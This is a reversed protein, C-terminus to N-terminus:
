DESLLDILDRVKGFIEDFTVVTVPGLCSRFLEFSRRQCADLSPTELSGVVVLCRPNFVCFQETVGRALAHFNQLLANRYNLVQVISGSLEETMCCANTRYQPGVLRTLPTKIEVLTVNRNSQTVFLFDVINGGTNEFTKGGVYCKEKLLLIHDPVAQAILRPTSVFLKQWFEEDANTKNREWVDLAQALPKAKSPDVRPTEIAGLELARAIREEHRARAQRLFDATYTAPDRDVMEHHNPCLVILNDEDWSAGEREPDYRPGGPGIAHIHCIHGLSLGSLEVPFACGPFACRGGSKAFLLKKVRSPIMARHKMGQAWHSTSGDGTPPISEFEKNEGLSALPLLEIRSM